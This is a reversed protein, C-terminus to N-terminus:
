IEEMPPPPPPPWDLSPIPEAIEGVPIIEDADSPVPRVHLTEKATPDRTYRDFAGEQSHKIKRRGKNIVCYLDGVAKNNHKISDNRRKCWRWCLISVVTVIVIGLVIGLVLLVITWIPFVKGGDM